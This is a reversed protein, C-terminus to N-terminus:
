PLLTYATRSAELAETFRGFWLRTEAEDYSSVSIEVSPRGGRIMPLSSLEIHAPVTKMVDILSNEGTEARLTMRYSKKNQPYFRSLAEGIMPHAMEPFGPVFFYREDLYFGSMNNVPNKLLRSGKPIDAMHIRHPYAADGFRGIIDREFEEHRVPAAGTFVRAAIERTLDDPTSGIGGSSIMVGLPDERIMRFVNEILGADDKVVLSAFLEYGRKQLSARIFDFHKDQRRGNLIETGIIVAYFHFGPM